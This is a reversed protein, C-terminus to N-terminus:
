LTIVDKAFAYLKMKEERVSFFLFKKGFRFVLM